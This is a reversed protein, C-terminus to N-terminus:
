EQAVYSHYLIYESHSTHSFHLLQAFLETFFWSNKIHFAIYVLPIYALPLALIHSHSLDLLATIPTHYQLSELLHVHCPLNAESASSGLSRPVASTNTSRSSKPFYLSCKQVEQHTPKSSCSVTYTQFAALNLKSM